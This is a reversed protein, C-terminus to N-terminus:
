SRGRGERLPARHQKLMLPNRAIYLGAQLRDALGLKALIHGVHKKVTPEGIGLASSIEKNSLGEALLGAIEIERSSLEARGAGPETPSSSSLISTATDSDYWANGAAVARLARFLEEPDASRRLTAMAGQSAALRLCDTGTACPPLPVGKRRFPPNLVLCTQPSRDALALIRLTPLEGRIRPIAPGGDQGSLNLSLLLVDPGLARCQLIAEDVSAAEGVVELDREDNLLGVLGGRDIAHQDAVVIRVPRVGPSSARRATRPPSKPVRHTARRSM